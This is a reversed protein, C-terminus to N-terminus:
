RGKFWKLQALLGEKLSVRPEFGLEKRARTIDAATHRVDGPQAEVRRLRARRGNLEELTAILDKVTCPCGGGLNYVKGPEGREIARITGSVADEVYTFDRSQQGDGFLTLEEGKLLASIFRHIAMDPRQRPGFVTFYRLAVAPLGYNRWYLFSLHEGALKTVGYPSNPRLPGDEQLPMEPSDGYVSSSSAYLFLRLPKGRSAELLRQTALINDGIYADFSRGWSGRVGAQAALHVVGEVEDVLGELPMERLNGEIFRFGKRGKLAQLNEEKTPRPYYNSFNDVGIVEEGKELLAEALHSGIFGACGTLLYRM